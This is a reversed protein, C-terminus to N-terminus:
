PSDGEPIVPVDAPVFDPDMVQEPYYVEELFLGQPPAMRGSASRSRAALIGPIDGKDREHRGIEVLTGVMIRVM